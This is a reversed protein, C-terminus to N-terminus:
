MQAESTGETDAPGLLELVVVKLLEMAAPVEVVSVAVKGTVIEFLVLPAKVDETSEELMMDVVLTILELAGPTDPVDVVLKVPTVNDVSAPLELTTPTEVVDLVFAVSAVDDVPAPLKPLEDVADERFIVPMTNLVVEAFVADDLPVVAVEPTEVEVPLEVLVV